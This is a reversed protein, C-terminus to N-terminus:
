NLGLKGRLTSLQEALMNVKAALTTRDPPTLKDYLEYGQATKYKALTADVVQFNASVTKVFEPDKSSLLPKVLFM